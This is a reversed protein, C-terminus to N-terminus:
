GNNSISAVGAVWAGRLALGGAWGYPGGGPSEVQYGAARNVEEATNWPAGPISAFGGGSYSEGIVFANLVDPFISGSDYAMDAAGSAHSQANAVPTSGLGEVEYADWGIAAVNAATVGVGNTSPCAPLVWASIFYSIGLADAPSQLCNTGGNNWVAFTHAPTTPTLANLTPPHVTVAGAAVGGVLVVVADGALISNPFSAWSNNCHQRMAVPPTSPGGPVSEATSGPAVPIIQVFIQSDTPNFAYLGIAGDNYLNVYVTGQAASTHNAPVVALGNTPNIADGPQNPTSYHPMINVEGLTNGFGRGIQQGTTPDGLLIEAGITLPDASLEVGFAGIHGWVIPTWPFPQAPLAFSGIAARQSIGNYSSFANEPMSYPSPILQSISVPVWIPYIQSATNTTPVSAATGAAGTDHYLNNTAPSVTAVLKTGASTTRYVKYNAALPIPQWQLSASSTTGTLTASVSNSPTTEGNANTATVQWTTAGAPLSGGSSNPVVQLNTPAPLYLGSTTRGTYGLLDGPVPVNTVIDVDPALAIASGSGAPGPPVALQFHQTPYLPTGGPVVISAQSPPVLEVTPTITPIPGPPGATGLMIRRYSDGYWIYGSSGTVNGQGDVDDFVWLKGKDAPKLLPAQPLDAPDNIADTQLTLIFMDIGQPGRPGIIAAMTLTGQDGNVEFTAVFEQDNANADPPLVVAYLKTNILYNALFSTDGVTATTM